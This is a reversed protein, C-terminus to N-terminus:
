TQKYGAMLLHMNKEEMIQEGYMRNADGVLTNYSLMWNHCTFDVNWRFRLMTYTHLYNNGHSIYRNVSPSFAISLHEKWPRLALTGEVTLERFSRQNEYTRIFYGKEYFVSEMIPHYERKYAITMDLSFWPIDYGATFQQNLTHYAKLCPNGRLLQGADIEQEMRNLVSLSPADTHFDAQYRIFSKDNPNFSLCVSPQFTYKERRVDNQSYYLRTATLNSMYSWSGLKRRYEAYFSSKSQRM